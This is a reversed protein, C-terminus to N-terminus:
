VDIVKKTEERTGTPKKNVITYGGIVKSSTRFDFITDLSDNTLLITKLGDRMRSYIVGKVLNRKDEGLGISGVDDMVLFSVKGLRDTEILSDQYSLRHFEDEFFMEADLNNDDKLIFRMIAVALHSKGTNSEGRILLNKEKSLMEVVGNDFDNHNARYLDFPIKHKKHDYKYVSETKKSEQKILENYEKETAEFCLKYDESWIQEITKNEDKSAKEYIAITENRIEEKDRGSKIHEVHVIMKFYNAIYQKYEVENEKM